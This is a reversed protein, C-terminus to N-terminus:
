IGADKYINGDIDILWAYLDSGEFVSVINKYEELVQPEYNSDESINIRSLTGDASILYFHPVGGNGTKVYYVSVYGDKELVVGRDGDIDEIKLKTGDIYASVTRTENESGNYHSYYGFVGGKYNKSLNDLYLNYQNEEKEGTEQTPVDNKEELETATECKEAPKNFCMGYVGFGIGALALIAFIITLVPSKKKTKEPAPIPEAAQKPVNEEM